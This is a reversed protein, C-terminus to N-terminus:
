PKMGEGLWRPSKKKAKPLPFMQSDYFLYGYILLETLLTTLMVGAVVFSFPTAFFSWEKELVRLDTSGDRLTVKECKVRFTSGLLMDWEYTYYDPSRRAYGLIERVQESPMGETISLTQFINPRGLSFERSFQSLVFSSFLGLGVFVAMLGLVMRRLVRKKDRKEPYFYDQYFFYGLLGIAVLICPLVFGNCTGFPSYEWCLRGNEYFLSFSGGFLLDYTGRDDRPLGLFAIVDDSNTYKNLQLLQWIGPPVLRVPKWRYCLDSDYRNILTYHDVLQLALIVCLITLVLIVLFRKQCPPRKSGHKKRYRLNVIGNITVPAAALLFGAILALGPLVDFWWIELRTRATGQDFGRKLQAVADSVTDMSGSLLREILLDETGDQPYQHLGGDMKVCYRFGEQEWQIGVLRGDSYLYRIGDVAYSKTGSVSSGLNRMTDRTDPLSNLSSYRIKEEKQTSQITISIDMGNKDTLDFRASDFYMGFSLGYCQFEGLQEFSYYRAGRDTPNRWRMYREYEQPTMTFSSGCINISPPTDTYAPTSLTSRGSALLATTGAATTLLILAITAALVKRYRRFSKFAKIVKGTLGAYEEVYTDSINTMAELIKKGTM